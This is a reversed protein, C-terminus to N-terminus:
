ESGRREGYKRDRGPHRERRRYYILMEVSLYTEMTVGLAAMPWALRFFQLINLHTLTTRIIPRRKRALACHM